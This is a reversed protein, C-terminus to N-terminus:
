LRSGAAAGDALFSRARGSLAADDDYSFCVHEQVAGL